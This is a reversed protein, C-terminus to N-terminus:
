SKSSRKPMIIGIIIIKLMNITEIYNFYYLLLEILKLSEIKLGAVSVLVLTVGAGTDSMQSMQISPHSPGQSIPLDAMLLRGSSFLIICVKRAITMESAAM